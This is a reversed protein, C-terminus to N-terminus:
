CLANSNSEHRFKGSVLVAHSPFLTIENSPILTAKSHTKFIDTNPKVFKLPFSETNCHSFLTDNELLVVKIEGM